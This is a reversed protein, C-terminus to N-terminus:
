ETSLKKDIERLRKTVDNLRFEISNLVWFQFHEVKTGRHIMWIIKVSVLLVALEISFMPPLPVNIHFVHRLIDLFFLIVIAIIFGINMYQDHKQSHKGGIQGVLMRIREKEKRFQELEELLAIQDLKEAAMM